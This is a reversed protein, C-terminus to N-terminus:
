GRRDDGIPLDEEPHVHVIPLAPFSAKVRNIGVIAPKNPEKIQLCARGAVGEGHVVNAAEVAVM